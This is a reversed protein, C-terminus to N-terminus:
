IEFGNIALWLVYALVGARHACRADRVLLEGSGLHHFAEGLEPEAIAYAGEVLRVGSYNVGAPGVGGVYGQGAGAARRHEVVSRDPLYPRGARRRTTAAPAQVFPTIRCTPTSIGM